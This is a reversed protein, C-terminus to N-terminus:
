RYFSYPLLRANGTIYLSRPKIAGMFLQGEAGINWVGGRFAFAVGLGTLLLPITIVLSETFNRTGVVAGSFVVRYATLPNIGFVAFIIAGIGLAMAIVLVISVPGFVLERRIKM